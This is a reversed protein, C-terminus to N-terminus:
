LQSYEFTPYGKVGDKNFDLFHMKYYLNDGTRIFYVYYPKTFYHGTIYTKWTYGIADRRNELKNVNLNSIKASDYNITSDLYATTKSPNSLVGTVQYPLYYPDYFIVSYHTFCLDWQSKDPEINNLLQGNGSFTLYRYNYHDDKPIIVTGSDPGTLSVFTISYSSGSFDNVKMKVLGLPNGAVDLGLNLVYVQGASVPESSMSSWWKGIANSDPDFMGLEYYWNALTTDAVTVANMDTKGTRVLSMFKATNMWINFKSADCDFMLDYAFRSNNSLVKNTALSYFFQNTYDPGMEIVATQGIGKNDPRTMPKEKFCSSLIGM